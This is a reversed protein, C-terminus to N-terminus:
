GSASPDGAQNVLIRAHVRFGKDEPRSFAVSGGLAQVREEIGTLGFGPKADRPIGQGDDEVDIELTKAQPGPTLVIRAAAQRAQGHRAINTLCEQVIRYTTIQLTDALSALPGAVELRWQTDPCRMRWGEVLDSLAEELGLEDLTPPRLRKLIARVQTQLQGVTDDIAQLQMAVEAYRQQEVLTHITSAHVKISFLYPALDDHIERALRRREEEQLNVLRNALLQNQRRAQGLVEATHNFRHHIRALEPAAAENVRATFDDQELREFASLLADLPQLGQRLAVYTLGCIFLFVGGVIMMLPQVEEWVERIEDTPDAEIILRSAKGPGNLVLHPLKDAAPMVLRAFWEPARSSKLAIPPFRQEPAPELIVRVHRLRTITAAIDEFRSRSLEDGPKVKALDLLQRVLTLNSANEAEVADHAHRITFHAGIAIGLLLIGTIILLLRLKLSLRDLNSV